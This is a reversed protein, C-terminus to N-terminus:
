RTEDTVVFLASVTLREDSGRFGFEKTVRYTGPALEIPGSEDAMAISGADDTEGPPLGYGVQPWVQGQNLFTWGGSATRMELKFQTGYDLDVVGINELLLAPDTGVEVIAPKIEIRVGAEDGDVTTSAAGTGLPEQNAHVPKTISAVVEEVSRISEPSAEPGIWAAVKFRDQGNLWVMRWYTEPAELTAIRLGDLILPFSTDPRDSRPMMIGCCQWVFQVGVFDSPVGAMDWESTYCDEGCDRQSLGGDINSVLAGQMCFGMGGCEDVEQLHWNSPYSMEWGYSHDLYTELQSSPAVTERESRTIGAGLAVGAVLAVLTAVSLGVLSTRRLLIRRRGSRGLPKLEIAESEVKSGLERLKAEIAVTM